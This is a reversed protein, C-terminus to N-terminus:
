HVLTHPRLYGDVFLSEFCVYRGGAQPQQPAVERTSVIRKEPNVLFFVIIRRHFKETERTESAIQSASSAEVQKEKAGGTSKAVDAVSAPLSAALTPAGTIVRVLRKLRAAQHIEDDDDWEWEVGNMDDERHMRCPDCCDEAPVDIQLM